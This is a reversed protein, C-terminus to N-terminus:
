GGADCRDIAPNRKNGMWVGLALLAVVVAATAIKGANGGLGAQFKSM